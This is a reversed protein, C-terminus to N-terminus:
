GLNVLVLAAVALLIGALTWRNYREKWFVASLLAALVITGVASTPYVVIGELGTLAWYFSLTAGVNTAGLLLGVLIDRGGSARLKRLCPILSSLTAAAYMSLFFVPEFSDGRREAYLKLAIGIYGTVATMLLIVLALKGLGAHRSKAGTYGRGILGFAFLAIILGVLKLITPAGDWIVMAAVTPVLVSSIREIVQTVGAGVLPVSWALTYYGAVLAVGTLAGLLIEFRGSHADTAAMWSFWCVVAGFLYNVVGVWTMNLRLHQGLRVTQVFGAMCFVAVCLAPVSPNM